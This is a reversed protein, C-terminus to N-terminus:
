VSVQTPRLAINRRAAVRACWAAYKPWLGDLVVIQTGLIDLLDTGKLFMNLRAVAHTHYTGPIYATTLM